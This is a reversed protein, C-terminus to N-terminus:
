QRPVRWRVQQGSHKRLRRLRRFLVGNASAESERKQGLDAHYNAALLARDIVSLLM